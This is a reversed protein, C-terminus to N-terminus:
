IRQVSANYSEPKMYENSFSFRTLWTVNLYRISPSLIMVTTGCFCVANLATCLGWCFKFGIHELQDNDMVKRREQVLKM